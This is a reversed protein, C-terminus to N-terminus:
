RLDGQLSLLHMCAIPTSSTYRRTTLVRRRGSHHEGCACAPGGPVLYLGLSLSEECIYKNVACADDCSQASKYMEYAEGPPHLSIYVESAAM